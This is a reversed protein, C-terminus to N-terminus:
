REGWARLKELVSSSAYGNYFEANVVICLGTGQPGYSIKSAVEETTTLDSRVLWVGPLVEVRFKEDFHPHIAEASKQAEVAILFTRM